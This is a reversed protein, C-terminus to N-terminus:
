IDKYNIIDGTSESVILQGPLQSIIQEGNPGRLMAPDRDEVAQLLRQICLTALQEIPQRYTTLRPSVYRSLALGDFGAVAVLSEGRRKNERLASLVGIAMMDNAAFIATPPEALRLLTRAGAYGSEETFDGHIRFERRDVLGAQQMARQFGKLRQETVGLEPPGSIHAIRSHGGGILHHTVETAGLENDVRFVTTPMNSPARDFAVLPIELDEVGTMDDQGSTSGVLVIGDVTSSRVMRLVDDGPKESAAILVGYGQGAAVSTAAGILEPFFPNRLSPLILGLVGTRRSRLSRAAASPAYDLDHVAKRVQSEALASVPATGNLVRSVTATSVGARAAVERVSVNTM